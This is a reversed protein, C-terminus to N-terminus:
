PKNAWAVRRLVLSPHTLNILGIKDEEVYLRFLKTNWIGLTKRGMAYTSLKFSFTKRKVLLSLLITCTLCRQGLNYYEM